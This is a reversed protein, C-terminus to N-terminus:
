FRKKKWSLYILFSICIFLIILIIRALVIYPTNIENADKMILVSIADRVFWWLMLIFLILPTIYKMIYYFIKPIKIDAGYNIEEWAKKSDFVWMFL